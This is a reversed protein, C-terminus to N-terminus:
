RPATVKALKDIRGSPLQIQVIGVGPALWVAGTPNNPDTIAIKWTDYTGAPVKLQERAVVTYTTPILAPLKATAGKALPFALARVTAPSGTDLDGFSEATIYLGDAALRLGGKSFYNLTDNTPVYQVLKGAATLETTWTEKFAASTFEFVTGVVLPFPAPKTPKTAKAAHAPKAPEAHAPVTFLGLALLAALAPRVM